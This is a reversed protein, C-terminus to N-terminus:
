KYVEPISVQAGARSRCDGCPRPNFQLEEIDARKIFIEKKKVSYAGFFGIVIEDPRDVNRINGRIEAPPPDFLDGDIEIQSELLKVIGSGM